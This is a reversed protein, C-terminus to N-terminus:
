IKKNPFINVKGTISGLNHTPLTSPIKKKKQHSLVRINNEAQKTWKNKINLVLKKRLLCDEAPIDRNVETKPETNFHKHAM